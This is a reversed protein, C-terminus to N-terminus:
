RWARVRHVVVCWPTIYAKDSRWTEEQVKIEACREPLLRAWDAPPPVEFYVGLASCRGLHRLKAHCKAKWRAAQQEAQFTREKMTGELFLLARARATEVVFRSCTAIVPSEHLLQIAPFLTHVVDEVVTSDSTFCRAQAFHTAPASQAGYHVATHFTDNVHRYNGLKLGSRGETVFRMGEWAVDQFANSAWRQASVCTQTTCDMPFLGWSDSPGLEDCRVSPAEHLCEWITEPSLGEARQCLARLCGGASANQGLARACVAEKLRCAGTGDPVGCPCAGYGLGGWTFGHLPLSLGEDPKVTFEAPGETEMVVFQVPGVQLRKTHGFGQPAKRNVGTQRCVASPTPAHRREQHWRFPSRDAM